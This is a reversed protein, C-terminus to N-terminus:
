NLGRRGSVTTMTHRQREQVTSSVTVVVGNAPRLARKKSGVRGELRAILSETDALNQALLSHLSRPRM